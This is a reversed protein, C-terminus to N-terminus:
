NKREEHENAEAKKIVQKAMFIGSVFQAEKAFPEFTNIMLKLTEFLEPAAAILKANAKAEEYTAGSAKAIKINMMPADGVELGSRWWPGSTYKIAM